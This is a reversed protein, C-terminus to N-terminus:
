PTSPTFNLTQTPVPSPIATPDTSQLASALLALAQAETINGESMCRQAQTGLTYVPNEDELLALRLQARELDGTVAYVQAILSRYADKDGAQLTAPTSHTYIVPNILLTYVLGILMGLILGTLLYWGGRKREPQPEPVRIERTYADNERDHTM